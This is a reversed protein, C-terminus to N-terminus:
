VAVRRYGGADDLLVFGRRKVQLPVGTLERGPRVVWGRAAADVLNDLLDSVCGQHRGADGCVLLVNSASHPGTEARLWWSYATGPLLM